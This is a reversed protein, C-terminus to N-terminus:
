PRVRCGIGQRSHGHTQIGIVFSFSVPWFRTPPRRGCSPSANRASHDCYPIGIQLAGTRLIYYMLGEKKQSSPSTEIVNGKATSTAHSRRMGTTTTLSTLM